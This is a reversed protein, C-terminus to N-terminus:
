VNRFRVMLKEMEETMTCGEHIQELVTAESLPPKVGKAGIDNELRTTEDILRLIDFHRAELSVARLHQITFCLQETSSNQTHRERGALSRM